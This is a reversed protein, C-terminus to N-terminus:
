LLLPLFFHCFVSDVHVVHLVRFLAATPPRGQILYCTYASLILILQYCSPLGSLLHFYDYAASIFVGRFIYVKNQFCQNCIYAESLIVKNTEIKKLCFWNLGSM